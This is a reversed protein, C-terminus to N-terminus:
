LNPSRLFIYRLFISELILSIVAPLVRAVASLVTELFLEMLLTLVAEVREEAVSERAGLRQLPKRSTAARGSGGHCVHGAIFRQSMGM